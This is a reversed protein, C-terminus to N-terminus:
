SSERGFGRTWPLRLLSPPKRVPEAELNLVLENEGDTDFIADGSDTDVRAPKSWVVATEPDVAIAYGTWTTNANFQVYSFWPSEAGSM